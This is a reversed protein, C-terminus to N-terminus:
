CLTSPSLDMTVAPREPNLTGGNSDMKLVFNNSCFVKLSVSYNRSILPFTNLFLIMAYGGPIFTKM